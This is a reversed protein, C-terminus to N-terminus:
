HPVNRAVDLVLQHETVHVDVGRHLRQGPVIDLGTHFVVDRVGDLHKVRMIM